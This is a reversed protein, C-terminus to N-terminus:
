DLGNVKNTRGKTVILGARLWHQYWKTNTWLASVLKKHCLSKSLKTSSRHTQLICVFCLSINIKLLVLHNMYANQAYKVFYFLQGILNLDNRRRRSMNVLRARPAGRRPHDRHRHLHVPLLSDSVHPGPGNRCVELWGSYHTTSHLFVKLIVCHAYHSFAFQMDFVFWM